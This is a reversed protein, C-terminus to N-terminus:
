RAEEANITLQYLQGPAVDWGQPESTLRCLAYPWQMEVAAGSAPAEGLEPAITATATGGAGSVLDATLMVLRKHGSPLTVTLMDGAKLVTASAPLGTLPLTAGATGGGAVTPNTATTQQNETARVPFSNVPGRLSVVWARWAKVAAEGMLVVLDGAVTWYAAGALGVVKAAGTWGSRNVQFAEVLRWKANRLDLPSPPNVTAM